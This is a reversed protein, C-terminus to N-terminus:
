GPLLGDGTPLKWRPHLKQLLQAWEQPRWRDSTPWGSHFRMCLFVGVHLQRSACASIPNILFVAEHRLIMKSEVLVCEGAATQHRLSLKAGVSRYFVDFKSILTDSLIHVAHRRM